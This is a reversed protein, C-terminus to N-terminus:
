VAVVLCYQGLWRVYLASELRRGDDNLSGLLHRANHAFPQIEINNKFSVKNRGNLKFLAEKACWYTCLTSLYDGAELMENENLYKRATRRLKDDKKEMDIGVPSKPNIVAAVYDFTHTISIYHQSGILFPKGHEDKWTGQFVEGAEAVIKALLVRGALWERKKQPHSIASFGMLDAAAPLMEHLVEASECLEWVLLRCDETINEAHVLPM